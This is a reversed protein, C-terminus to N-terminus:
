KELKSEGSEGIKLRLCAINKILDQKLYTHFLVTSCIYACIIGYIYGKKKISFVFDVYNETESQM